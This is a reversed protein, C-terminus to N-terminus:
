RRDYGVRMTVLECVFSHSQIKCRKGIVVNKQIEVFPGVFCDDGIECGYLNVPRIIKVNNGFKVQKIGIKKIVPKVSKM